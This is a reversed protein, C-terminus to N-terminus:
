IKAIQPVAKILPATKNERPKFENTTPDNERRFTPIQRHAPANLGHIKCLLNQAVREQELPFGEVPKPRCDQAARQAIEAGRAGGWLKTVCEASRLKGM